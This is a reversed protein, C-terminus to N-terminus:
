ELNSLQDRDAVLVQESVHSAIFTRAGTSWGGRRIGGISENKEREEGM